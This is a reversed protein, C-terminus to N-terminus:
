AVRLLQLESGAQLTVASGAVESAFTLQFNGATAGNRVLGLVSATHNSGVATVGTGLVAGTTGELANPFLKRLHSAAATSAVPVVVELMPRCGAPTAFGLHLGTTTAAAQFTVFASVQYVGGALMPLALATVNGLAVVSSAQTAAMVAAELTPGGGAAPAQWASAYNAAATKTLVQGLQGGAPQVRAALVNCAQVLRALGAALQTQMSM